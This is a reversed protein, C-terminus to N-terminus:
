SPVWPSPDLFQVSVLGGPCVWGRGRTKLQQLGLVRLEEAWM